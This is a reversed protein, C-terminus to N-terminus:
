SLQDEERRAESFTQETVWRALLANLCAMINFDLLGGSPWSSSDNPSMSAPVLEVATIHSARRAAFSLPEADAVIVVALYSPLVAVDVVLERHLWVSAIVDELDYLVPPIRVSGDHCIHKHFFVSLVLSSSARAELETKYRIM